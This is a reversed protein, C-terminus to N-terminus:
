ATTAKRIIVNLLPAKQNNNSILSTYKIITPVPSPLSINYLGDGNTSREGQFLFNKNKSVRMTQNTFTVKCGDDCLQRISINPQKM